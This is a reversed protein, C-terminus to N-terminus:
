KYLMYMNILMKSKRRKSKLNDNSLTYKNKWCKNNLFFFVIFFGQQYFHSLSAAVSRDKVMDSTMIVAVTFYVIGEM